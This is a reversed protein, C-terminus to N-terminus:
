TYIGARAEESLFSVPAGLEDAHEISWTGKPWFCELAAKQYKKNKGVAFEGRQHFEEGWALQLIKAAGQVGVWKGIPGKHQELDQVTPQVIPSSCNNKRIFVNPNKIAASIKLCLAQAESTSLPNFTFFVVGENRKSYSRGNTMIVEESYVEGTEVDVLDVVTDPSQDQLINTLEERSERAMEALFFGAYTYKGTGNEHHGEHVAAINVFMNRAIKSPDTKVPVTSRYIIIKPSQKNKSEQVKKKVSDLRVIGASICLADKRAARAPSNVRIEDEDEDEDDNDDDNKSDNAVQGPEENHNTEKEM